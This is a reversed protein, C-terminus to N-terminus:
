SGILCKWTRTIWGGVIIRHVAIWVAAVEKEGDPGDPKITFFSGDDERLFRRVYAQRAPLIRTEGVSSTVDEGDLLVETEKGPILRVVCVGHAADIAKVQDVGGKICRRISESRLDSM